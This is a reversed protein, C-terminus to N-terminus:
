MGIFKICVPNQIKVAHDMLTLKGSEHDIKFASINNSFQNATFLYRGTPDIAFDRPWKGGSPCHCILSLNGTRDEIKFVAISDHGRNSVYLFRGDRSVEIAASYSEGEYGEPLASIYQLVKFGCDDCSYKLVVVESNLETVIYAYEGNPHFVMHRPGSGPKLPLSSQFVFRGNKIGYVRIQDIGLDVACVYREDPTFDAFHAHAMEQRNKNPGTGNHIVIDSVPALSGDERVQFLSVTGENYNATLVNKNLSGVSVFCPAKGKTPMTNLLTLKGDTRDISFAAAGGGNEGNFVEDEIVSYLYKGDKSFTLYSPNDVNATHGTDKLKGDSTDLEYIHIGGSGGNTYTGAYAFYRKTM